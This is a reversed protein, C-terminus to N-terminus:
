ATCSVMAIRARVEFHVLAGVGGSAPPPELTGLLTEVDVDDSQGFFKETFAVEEREFGTTTRLKEAREALAQLIDVALSQNGRKLEM